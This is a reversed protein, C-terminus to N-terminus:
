FRHRRWPFLLNKVSGYLWDRDQIAYSVSRDEYSEGTLPMGLPFMQRLRAVGTVAAMRIGEPITDPTWGGTYTVKIQGYGEVIFPSLYGRQRASPKPWLSNRRILWGIESRDTRDLFLSFDDGYTLEKTSDFEGSGSGFLGSEDVWVRPTPSLFAPYAHLQLKDTGSGAFYETREKLDYFDERGLYKGIRSSVQSIFFSLKVDESTDQADIELIAKTEVLDCFLM